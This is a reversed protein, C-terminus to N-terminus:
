RARNIVFYEGRDILAKIKDLRETLDVIYHKTPYCSGTINFYKRSVATVEIM